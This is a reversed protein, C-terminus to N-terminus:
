VKKTKTMKLPFVLWKKPKVVPSTLGNLIASEAKSVKLKSGLQLFMWIMGKSPREPGLIALFDGSTRLFRLSLRQFGM